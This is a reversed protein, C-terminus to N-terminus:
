PPLTLHLTEEAELGWFAFFTAVVLGAILYWRIM